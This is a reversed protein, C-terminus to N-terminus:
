FQHFEKQEFFGFFGIFLVKDIKHAKMYKDISFPKGMIKEYYRLDISYTKNFHGALLKLIANDYSDGFILINPRDKRGTDFIIEGDDRGYFSYGISWEVTLAKKLVEEAYGYDMPSGDERKDKGDITIHMPPFDFIYVYFKGQFKDQTGTARSKTERHGRSMLVPRYGDVLEPPCDDPVGYAPNPEIPTKIVEGEKDLQLLRFVEKYGKYSGLYQWHHDTRYFYRKHDNFDKVRFCAIHDGPITLNKKVFEYNGAHWRTDYRSDWDREIYYVYFAKDAHRQAADNIHKTMAQLHDKNEENLVKTMFLLYPEHSDGYLYINNRFHVYYDTFNYMRKQAEYLVGNRLWFFKKKADQAFPLQDAIFNNMDSQWLGAMWEARDWQPQEKTMRNEIELQRAKQGCFCCIGMVLLFLFVCVPFACRGLGRLLKNMEKIDSMYKKRRQKEEGM